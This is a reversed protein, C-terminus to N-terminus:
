ASIGAPLHFQGEKDSPFDYTAVVADLNIPGYIHPYLEATTGEYKLPSLVRSAEIQLLLLADQGHYFTNAVKIVQHITSCHIFGESELTEKRYIGNEQEHQWHASSAIHFIFREHDPITM